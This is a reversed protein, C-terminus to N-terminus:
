WRVAWYHWGASPPAITLADSGDVKVLYNNDAGKRLSLVGEADFIFRDKQLSRSDERAWLEITGKASLETPVYATENNRPTGYAHWGTAYPKNELQWRDVNNPTLIITGTVPRIRNSDAQEISWEFSEMVPTFN